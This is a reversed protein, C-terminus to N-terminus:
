KPFSQLHSCITKGAQFFCNTIVIYFSFQSAAGGSSGDTRGRSPLIARGAPGQWLSFIPFRLVTLPVHLVRHIRLSFTYTVRSVKTSWHCPVVFVDDGLMAAFRDLAPAENCTEM